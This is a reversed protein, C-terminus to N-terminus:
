AKRRALRRRALALTGLGMGALVFTSPEPTTAVFGQGSAYIAIEPTMGMGDFELGDTYNSYWVTGDDNYISNQTHGGIAYAGAYPQGVASLAIWYRLGNTLSFPSLISSTVLSLTQNDAQLHDSVGLVTAPDPANGNDAYVEFRFATGLGESQRVIYAGVTDLITGTAGTFVFSNTYVYTGEIGGFPAWTPGLNPAKDIIVDARSSSATVAALALLCSATRLWNM